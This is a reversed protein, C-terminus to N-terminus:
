DEKKAPTEPTSLSASASSPSPDKLKTPDKPKGENLGERFAGPAKRLSRVIAPLMRGGFFLLLILALVILIENLGIM